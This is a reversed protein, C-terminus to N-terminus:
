DIVERFHIAKKITNSSSFYLAIEKSTHAAHTGANYFNVWIEMPKPPEIWESIIDYNHYKFSKVTGDLNHIWGSLEPENNEDLQLSIISNKRIAAIYLKEGGRTLYLKGIEFKM